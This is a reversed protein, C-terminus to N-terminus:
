PLKVVRVVHELDFRISEARAKLNGAAEVRSTKLLLEAMKELTSAVESAGPGVANEYVQLAERYFREAESYRGGATLAAALNVATGAVVPHHPGFAALRIVYAKRFAKEAEPFAARIYNMAGVSSWVAAVDPHNGLNQVLSLARDFLSVAADWNKRVVHIGALNTLIPVLEAQDIRPNSEIVAIAKRFTKEARAIDGKKYYLAGLNNLIHSIYPDRRDLAEAVRLSEKLYGETANDDGDRSSLVSLNNLVVPLHRKTQTTRLLNLAKLCFRRSEDYQGKALLVGCLDALAEGFEVANVGNEALSVALRHYQEAHDYNGKKFEQRGKILLSSVGDNANVTGLCAVGALLLVGVARIRM